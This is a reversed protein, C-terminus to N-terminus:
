RAVCDYVGLPNDNQLNPGWFHVQHPSGTRVGIMCAPGRQASGGCHNLAM